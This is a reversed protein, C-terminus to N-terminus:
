NIYKVFADRFGISRFRYLLTDSEDKNLPGLMLKYTKRGYDVPEYIGVPYVRAYQNGVTVAKNRDQYTALQIFYTGRQLENLHLDYEKVLAVPPTPTPSPMFMGTVVPTPTPTRYYDPTPTSTAAEVIYTGVPPKPETAELTVESGDMTAPTPKANSLEPNQLPPPNEPNLAMKEEESPKLREESPDPVLGNQKSPMEPEEPNLAVEVTDSEQKESSYDPGVPPNPEVPQAEALLEDKSYLPSKAKEDVEPKELEPDALALKEKETLQNKPVELSEVPKDKKLGEKLVAEKLEMDEPQKEGNETYPRNLDDLVFKEDDRPSLYLNKQPDRSESENRSVFGPTMTPTPTAIIGETGTATPTPTGPMFVPPSPTPQVFVPTATVYVATPPTPTGYTVTLDEGQFGTESEDALSTNPYIDPDPNYPLEENATFYNLNGPKIITVRVQIVDGVGIGLKYGAEESLLLFVNTLTDIRKVVTVSVTKGTNLDEVLIITNTSFSNSAAYLGGQTFEGRQIIAANGQWSEDAYLNM